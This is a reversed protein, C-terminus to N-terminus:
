KANWEWRPAASYMEEVWVSVGRYTREYTVARWKTSRPQMKAAKKKAAM